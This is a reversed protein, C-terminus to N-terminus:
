SAPTDSALLPAPSIGARLEERAMWRLGSPMPLRDFTSRENIPARGPHEDHVSRLSWGKYRKDHLWREVADLLSQPTATPLLGEFDDIHLIGVPILDDDIIEPGKAHRLDHALRFIEAQLTSSMDAWTDLTLLIGKMAPSFNLDADVLGLRHHAVHRWMQFIGYALDTLGEAESASEAFKSAHSARKAKCEILLTVAGEAVLALDSSRYNKGKKPAYANERVIGIQALFAELLMVVYDEFRKGMRENVAGPGGVIDYYIGSGIRLAILDPLPAILERGGPLVICPSLRLASKKYGTLGPESRLLSAQRRAQLLPLSVKKFVIDREEDTISVSSLNITMSAFPFTLLHARLAFGCFAFREVSLGVNAEFRSLAEPFDFIFLPRYLQLFHGFGRQWPFQRQALHGMLHLINNGSRLWLGEEANECQVLQSILANAADRNKVHLRRPGSKRPTTLYENVLTELSWPAFRFRERAEEMERVGFNPGFRRVHSFEGNHLAALSWILQLFETPEGLSM